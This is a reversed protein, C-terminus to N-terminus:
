GKRSTVLRCKKLADVEALMNAIAQDHFKRHFEETEFIRELGLVGTLFGIRRECYREVHREARFEKEIGRRYERYRRPSSGLIWYDGDHFYREDSSHETAGTKYTRIFAAVESIFGSGLRVCEFLRAMLHVSLEESEPSPNEKTPVLYVLDHTEVGMWFADPNELPDSIQGCVRHFDSIHRNTHHGRHPEQYRSVIEAFVRLAREEDRTGGHRTVINFFAEYRARAGPVRAFM